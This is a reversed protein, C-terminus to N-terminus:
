ANFNIHLYVFLFIFCPFVVNHSSLCRLITSFLFFLIKFFLFFRLSAPHAGAIGDKTCGKTRNKIGGFLVAIPKITSGANLAFTFLSMQMPQIFYHSVHSIYMVSVDTESTYLIFYRM